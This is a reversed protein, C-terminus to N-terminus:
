IGLNKEIQRARPDDGSRSGFTQHWFDAKTNPEDAEADGNDIAVPPRGNKMIDSTVCGSLLLTTAMLIATKLGFRIRKM